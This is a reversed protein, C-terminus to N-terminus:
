TGTERPEDTGHANAETRRHNGAGVTTRDSVLEHENVGCNPGSRVLSRRPPHPAVGVRGGGVRKAAGV